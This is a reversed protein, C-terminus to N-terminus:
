WPRTLVTTVHERDPATIGFGICLFPLVPHPNHGRHIKAIPESYVDGAKARVLIGEEFEAEFMGQLVLFFTAGNHCHWNTYGGPAIEANYIQVKVQPDKPMSAYLQDFVVNRFLQQEPTTYGSLKLRLDQEDAM